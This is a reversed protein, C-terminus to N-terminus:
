IQQALLNLLLVETPNSTLLPPRNQRIGKGPRVSSNSWKGGHLRRIRMAVSQSPNPRIDIMQPHLQGPRPARPRSHTTCTPQLPGKHTTQLGHEATNDPPLKKDSGKRKKKYIPCMWGLTFETRPDVGHNQIDILTRFMCNLANFSPKQERAASKHLSHLHKWLEYPIGDPGAATGLKSSALAKELDDATIPSNLPSATPDALKQENPIAHLAEGLAEARTESTPPLLDDSQLNEHYDKALRAMEDTRTTVSQTLPNRLRQILDRPKKPNNIKTWYKNIKEGKLHWLAQSRTFARKYKKKELHDIEREIFAANTRAPPASDISEQQHLEALDRKLTSIRKTIKPIQIKAAKTAEQRIENKFDQWLTQPNTSRDGAPLNNLKVQLDCGMSLIRKNLEKDHLLGLPWSWRDKGIFPANVPALRLSVIKHDSPISSVDHSWDTINDDLDRRAYIRDIRSMTHHATTFTFARETPFSQRWSDCVDLTHRCARLAQIANENDSRAPARDINDETLNFDGMMFDPKPLHLASWQRELESWFVPHQHQDNPAYVNVLRIDVNRQWKLSLYIARGPILTHFSIDRADIVEKNIVFAVGASATPNNLGPSNLITIRRHHLTSVQDALADSLHTEQLALIGLKQSRLTRM